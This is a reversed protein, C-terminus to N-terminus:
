VPVPSMRNKKGSADVLNRLEELSNGSFWRRYKNEMVQEIEFAGERQPIAYIKDGYRVFNFGKYGEEVLIPNPHQHNVLKKVEDIAVAKVYGPYDGMHVRRLSFEGNGQKIGHFEQGVRIIDYDQYGQVVIEPGWFVDVHRKVESLSASELRNDYNGRASRNPDFGAQTREAAYFQERSRIISYGRYWEAILSPEQVKESPATM